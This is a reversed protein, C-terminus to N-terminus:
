IFGLRPFTTGLVATPNGGMALIIDSLMNRFDIKVVLNGNVDFNKLSPYDGYVGGKVTDGLVFAVSAAGHDTGLSLNAAPTRGFESMTVIVVNKSRNKGKLYTYFQYLATSMDGLMAPHAAETNQGSHTDYGFDIAAYGRIGAGGVIMQAIYFLQRSLNSFPPPYDTAFQAFGQMAGVANATANTVSQAEAAAATKAPVGLIKEFADGLNFQPIGWPSFINFGSPSGVVLGAGAISSTVLVSGDTSATPGVLGLPTGALTTGLWGPPLQAVDVNIQGTSWDSWANFHSLPATETYPLGIGTIVALKGTAYLARM